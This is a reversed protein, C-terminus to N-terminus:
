EATLPRAMLRQLAQAASGGEFLLSHLEEVIPLEVGAQRSLARASRTTRVGEAVAPTSATIAELSEGLALRRGLTRNRSHESTCTLVLDGLGALGSFTAAQCGLAAGLRAIEALGRTVLAAQTNAGLELGDAMGAAIAIVNKLAGALQVGRPDDSTYLRLVGSSLLAQVRRNFVDDHSAVAVATPRERALEVAFSPGSLVALSRDDGLEDAAVTLPLALSHEEIGKTAVIVPQARDVLPALSRYVARAHHSPVVALVLDADHVAAALDGHAAVSAPIRVGPLFTPNERRERIAAVVEEERAWLRVRRGQRGLYAALATGWAGAGIVAFNEDNL